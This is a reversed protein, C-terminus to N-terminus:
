IGEFRNPLIKAPESERGRGIQFHFLRKSSRRPRSVLLVSMRSLDGRSERFKLYAAFSPSIIIGVIFRCLTHMITLIRDQSLAMVCPRGAVLLASLRAIWRLISM